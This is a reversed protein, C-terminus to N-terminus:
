PLDREDATLRRFTFIHEGLNFRVSDGETLRELRRQCFEPLEPNQAVLDAVSGTWTESTADTTVHIM